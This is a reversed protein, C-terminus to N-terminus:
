LQILIESDYYSSHHIIPLQNSDENDDSDADVIQVFSTNGIGGVLRLFAEDLDTVTTHMFFMCTIAQVCLGHKGKFLLFLKFGKLTNNNFYTSFIIYYMIILFSKLM